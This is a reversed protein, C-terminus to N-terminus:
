QALFRCLLSMSLQPGILSPFVTFPPRVLAFQPFWQILHRQLLPHFPLQSLRFPVLLEPPNIM